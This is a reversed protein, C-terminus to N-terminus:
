KTEAAGKGGKGGKGGSMHHLISMPADAVLPPAPILMGSGAASGEAFKKEDKKEEDKKEDDDHDGYGYDGYDAGDGGFLAKNIGFGFKAKADALAKATAQAYIKAEAAEKASVSVKADVTSMEKVQVLEMEQTSEDYDPSHEIKKEMAEEEKQWQTLQQKM